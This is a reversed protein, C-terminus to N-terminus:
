SGAALAVQRTDEAAGDLDGNVYCHDRALAKGKHWFRRTRVHPRLHLITSPALSAPDAEPLGDVAGLLAMAAEGAVEGLRVPVANGVQRMKDTTSGAFQWDPPFEMVAASEGVTLARLETPHCMSTAAHNPMTQITPCPFEFSLKRWTSSRGGKLYYQKGMAEKQLEPPLSRWNGGPPVLALYKLKRPSFNMCDTDPDQFGEGIADGLTRFPPLDDEIRNSYLPAPFHAHANFRNGICIVRERIQPAGYNVANVVFCDVRYGIAEFERFITRLLSGHADGQREPISHLGRVNEMVFVKPRAEAVIRLYEFILKGRDDQLGRRRGFIAFAQCPPGGAVLPLDTLPQGALAAFDEATLEEISNTALPVDPRNRRITEVCPKDIENAALVRFGARELGLDLGM